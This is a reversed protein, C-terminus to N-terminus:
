QASSSEVSTRLRAYYQILGLAIRAPHGSPWKGAKDQYKILWQANPSLLLPSVDERMGVLTELILGTDEYKSRLTDDIKILKEAEEEWGWGKKDDDLIAKEQGQLWTVANWGTVLAKRLATYSKVRGKPEGSVDDM